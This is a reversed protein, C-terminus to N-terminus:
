ALNLEMFTEQFVKLCQHHLIKKVTWIGKIDSDSLTLTSFPYCTLQYLILVLGYGSIYFWCRPLYLKNSTEYM